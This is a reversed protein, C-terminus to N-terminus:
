TAKNGLDYYICSGTRFSYIFANRTEVKVDRAMDNLLEHVQSLYKREALPVSQIIRRWSDPDSLRTERIADLIDDKVEIAAIPGDLLSHTLEQARTQAAEVINRRNNRKTKLNTILLRVDQESTDSSQPLQDHHSGGHHQLRPRQATTGERHDRERIETRLWGVLESSRIDSDERRAMSKVKLIREGFSSSDQKIIVIWSHRDERYVALLEEPSRSDVALEASMDHAWLKQVIEIGLTRLVKSDFSAVLVDCRRAAWHGRLEDAEAKKLFTKAGAKQFRAMSTFLKEWGLNFGVAHSQGFQGQTKPRHDRILQDYRGGAAFVDRRKTDYLCQFLLGGRYFKDNFSSLPSVFVKRQVGYRRLYTSVDKLHALVSLSADLCETGEFIASIKQSAKETDDRFDFRALDDLSTSPVGLTPSRLENRIKQWTWQGINLKSIIEKVAPRQPVSIRCFDMILDLLDSHNIHYCMPTSKLSPFADVVEDIVKIVEAEKMALDLADYTVLDYDVEGHSRPQGGTYMDRYVNGFAFTKSANPAHKAILRAYPLTLDYPLQVLTGSSDLLQVVNSSYYSSRPFLLPRTTEIAGHCRFVSTLTDRIISQLLLDNSTYNTTSGMDWAYDKVQKIPQSFLASMIKQYYPSNSESLSALAQRMTQDEIQVPLKGSQLLESCSPRETPRHSLMSKIIEGQVAKTQSQFASPLTFGKERLAPLVRGREMETALPFCMEFFIVGLSYMDVKENYHGNVNSRLEPAVYMATGISRTMDSHVDGAPSAARDALYYQGSTALGFDGIRPNSAVDIFINAPKLDRHIIGHGHIHNLGELIQRFLRWSEEIDDYLGRKILDRLTHKECYEMQIYLISRASRQSRTDSVTRKLKLNNEDEKSNGRNPRNAHSGFVASSSDDSESDADSDYAFQVDLGGTSSIIDLGGTSQGFEISPGANPSVSSGNTFSLTTDDEDDSFIQAEEEPWANFYRVVYPHNLRSLLMIESLVDSLYTSSNQTIKKIAYLQGDMKNRAKFVEGFGGKGLRGLEDFDNTYRSFVSGAGFSDHRAHHSKPPQLSVSSSLRSDPASSSQELLSASSRLLGSALLDFASPRKRPDSKFTKSIFDKSLPSFDVSDLCASPSSYSQMVNIGLVMQLFVIGFDWIDTKRTAHQGEVQALEPTGWYASRAVDGGRTEQILDRLDHLKRQFGGDSLKITTAGSRPRHLLINGPHIGGHIIGNCHYFEIAELIQITWTRINEPGLTGVTELLDALSGKDGYETLISFTWNEQESESHDLSRDVKFDLVYAINVNNAKRLSKLVELEKEIALVAKRIVSNKTPCSEFDVRKIVLPIPRTSPKLSVPQVLSVETVPGSRIQFTINVARFTVVNGDEDMVENPQDFIIRNSNDDSLEHGYYQNTTSMRNKRKTERSKSKQRHVEEQLMQQLMREEELAEERRKKELEDEEAMRQKEDEAEKLAREEELSPMGAVEARSQVADELVDRILATIDYIMESGILDKPTTKVIENIKARYRERLDDTGKVALLPLTKPYTATLTVQLTVATESDNSAAIRIKFMHDASKSWAGSSATMEEFDEMFISRLAEVEDQQRAKCEDGAQQSAEEVATELDPFGDKQNYNHPAQPTWPSKPPM